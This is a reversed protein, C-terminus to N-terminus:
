RVRPYTAYIRGLPTLQDATPDYFNGAPYRDATDYVAYWFWWQVLRHEDAAYGLEPDAATSMFDLTGALFRGVREKDFGYDPPMLIGYESVVLPRERYGRAAMWARFAILNQAFIALDDHEDMEYRLGEAEAMGPPIDVGWSGAVEPLIFAHVNWFDTPLPQGYRTAYALLIRDLYAMRLPTPQSVGGIGVHATPDASKLHTYVEHYIAAYQEATTNDQWKVDMENGVLWFSGPNEQALATLSAWTDNTIGTEGVRVMRWYTGAATPLNAHWNLYSGFVLGLEQVREAYAGSPFTVGFREEAAIQTIPRDAPPVALPLGAPPTPIAWQPASPIPTAVATPDDVGGGAQGVPTRTPVIPEPTATPAIPPPPTNGGWLGMGLLLAGLGLLLAPWWQRLYPPIM